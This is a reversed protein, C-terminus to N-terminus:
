CFLSINLLQWWMKIFNLMWRWQQPDLVDKWNLFSKSVMRHKIETDALDSNMQELQVVEQLPLIFGEPLAPVLPKSGIYAQGLRAELHDVKEQLIKLESMFEEM